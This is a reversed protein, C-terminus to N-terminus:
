HFFYTTKTSHLSLKSSIQPTWGLIMMMKHQNGHNKDLSAIFVEAAKCLEGVQLMGRATIFKTCFPLLLSHSDNYGKRFNYLVDVSLLHAWFYCLIFLGYLIVLIEETDLHQPVPASSNDRIVCSM